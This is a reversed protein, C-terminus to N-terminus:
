DATLCTRTALRGLEFADDLSLVLAGDHDALWRDAARPGALFRVQCCFTARIDECRTADPAPFSVGIAKPEAARVGDHDVSLRVPTDTLPCHSHVSARGGIITPLFLTDWACWAHLEQGGVDLRHATPRLTLGSFAIVRGHADREVNPWGALTAVVGTLDRGTM